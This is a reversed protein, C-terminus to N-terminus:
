LYPREICWGGSCRIGELMKGFTLPGGTLKELLNITKISMIILRWYKSWNSIIALRLISPGTISLKHSRLHGRIM